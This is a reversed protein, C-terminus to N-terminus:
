LKAGKKQRPKCYHPETIHELYEKHTEFVRPTKKDRRCRYCIYKEEKM